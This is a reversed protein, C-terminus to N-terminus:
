YHHNGIGKCNIGTFVDLHVRKVRMCCHNSTKLKTKHTKAKTEKEKSNLLNNNM